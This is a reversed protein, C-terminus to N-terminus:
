RFIGIVGAPISGVVKRNTACCITLSFCFIFDCHLLVCVVHKPKLITSASEKVDNGQHGYTRIWINVYKVNNKTDYTIKFRQM